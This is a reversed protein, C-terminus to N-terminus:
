VFLMQVYKGCVSCMFICVIPVDMYFVYIGHAMCLVIGCVECVCAVNWEYDVYVCVCM